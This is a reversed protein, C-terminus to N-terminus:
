LQFCNTEQKEYVFKYKKLTADLIANLSQLQFGHSVEFTKRLM